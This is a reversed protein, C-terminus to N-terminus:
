FIRGSVAGSLMGALPNVLGGALTGVAQTGITAWPSPQPTYQRTMPTGIYEMGRQLWPSNEPQTRLFQEYASDALNQQQAQYPALAQSFASARTAPLMSQQAGLQVGQLQRNKASEMLQAELQQNSFVAKSLESALSTNLGELAQRTADARRSSFLAGHSAFSDNLRPAIDQDFARLMPAKVGKEFYDSTSKPDLKYSPQGALADRIASRMAADLQDAISM